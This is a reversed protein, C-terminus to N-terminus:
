QLCKKIAEEGAALSSPNGVLYVYNSYKDTSKPVTIFNKTQQRIKKVVSGERGVLKTFKSSNAVYFWGAHTSEEAQQLRSKIIEAVKATDKEDGKLRWPIVVDSEGAVELPAITFKIEEENAPLAEQPPAPSSASSLKSAQRNLVGHQVEVNHNTKLEKFISGKESVLAHYRQPVDIVVNWDDKTISDIKEKLAQIKEELGSIKIITSEDNPRPIIINCGFEDQLAHRISGGPGVILKHKEKALDYEETISAEKIAIIDKVQEIIKDVIAKDGKSTVEDSGSSENPISLLRYYKNRPVDDGGAKSIIEKMISGGPGVLDRHYKPDVKLTVSVFSEVEDVIEQIKKIAEKLSSKSGMLEFEGFGEAEHESNFKYEIGCGDAIDKITEGSKGIVRAIAKSPIKLTEKFGNEKEFQHLEKLEEVAKAVGKSPGKVTVEDKSQPGDFFTSASSDSSPFRIKVNYKDQLRNIYIGSAGIMRRHFQQEIRLRVLSEDAFKKSMQLIRSKTEEANRKIGSIVITAKANKDENSAQRGENDDEVDIKTGFEEKLAQISAGNKGIIRSLVFRPIEISTEFVGNERLEAADQLVTEIDKKVKSVESKLGKVFVEDKSAGDQNSHLKIIVSNPPYSSLISKLTTGRPGSINVQENHPVSLVFSDLGGALERLVDLAKNVEELAEDSSSSDDFDFDDAEPQSEAIFFLVIRKGLVVYQVNHKDAIEDITAPVKNLLFEDIDEVVKTNEPKLSSVLTVISKKANKTNEVEDVKAVIEIPISTSTESDTIDSSPANITVGAENGIKKFSGNKNLLAAVAKVHPLNGKHAKSMDLVEVKYQSTTKRAQEKAADLKKKDGIFKVATEGAEPLKILVNFQELVSEVPLFQHKVKPIEVSETVITTPLSKLVENVEQYAQTVDARDGNVTIKTSSSNFTPISFELASFKAVIPALAKTVFPKIEPEVNIKISLNKTEEKVINIIQDKARRAGEFDGEIDVVITKTPLESDSEPEQAEDANGVNVKVEHAQTIAKITRGQPGIIKSRVEAPISFTLKILKTLKKIVLRKAERVQDTKGTILFTRKKTHQSTTCEINTKTDAKISTLIKIFEPKSVNLQDDADLSFAAQITTFKSTPTSVKAASPSSVASVPAPAPAKLSPGWSPTSGTAAAATASKKGGLTPFAAEDTISPSNSDTTASSLDYHSDTEDDTASYDATGASSGNGNLHIGNVRAAIIEAPTSM